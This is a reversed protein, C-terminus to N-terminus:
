VVGGNFGLNEHLGLDTEPSNDWSGETRIHVPIVTKIVLKEAFRQIQQFCTGGGNKKKKLGKGSM